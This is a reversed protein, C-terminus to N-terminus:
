GPAGISALYCRYKRSDGNSAYGDFVRVYCTPPNRQGFVFIRAENSTKAAGPVGVDLRSSPQVFFTAIGKLNVWAGASEGCVVHDRAGELSLLTVDPYTVLTIGPHM